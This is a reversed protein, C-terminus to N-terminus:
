IETNIIRRMSKRFKISINIEKKLLRKKLQTM